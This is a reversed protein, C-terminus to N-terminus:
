RLNGTHGLSFRGPQPWVLLGHPGPDTPIRRLLVGSRTDIVYVESSYRGALWLQSGDATVGGMDPTARGPLRWTAVLSSSAADLVGISGADRNSVFVRKADRSPYIGHAGLGTPVFRSVTRRTADIIWVGNRLMDAVLFWKGDPSLRVDQPMASAGASLQSKPGPMARAQQPSTAGPTRIGNLDIVKSVRTVGADVVLLRGNFECSVLLYRLDATYDAHNVGACMPVPISRVLRMTRADLVDIARFRSAMVLAFRGDPTFYLNYPDRVAVPTGPRGTVPDVPTLANGADSNVWLRSLDWAPVVHEPSTPVPYRAVVRYTGPDIVQMSGSLQNPVYVLRKARVAAGTLQGAGAAAYPQLTLPSAAPRTAPAGASGPAASPTVAPATSATGDSPPVPLGTPSRGGLAAGGDCAGLVLAAVVALAGSRALAARHSARSSGTKTRIPAM